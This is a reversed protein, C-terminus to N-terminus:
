ATTVASEAILPTSTTFIDDMSDNDADAAILKNEFDWKMTLPDSGPRLVAPILTMNGETDHTVSQSAVTLLEHTPGRTRNQSSSNETISTWNILRDEDGYGSSGVAFGYGSM